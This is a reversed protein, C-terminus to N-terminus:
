TATASESGPGRGPCRRGGRGAGATRTRQGPHGPSRLPGATRRRRDARHHGNPATAEEGATVPVGRDPHRGAPDVLREGTRGPRQRRATAGTGPCGAARARGADDRGVATRVVPQDGAAAPRHRHPPHRIAVDRPGAYRQANTLAEALIRYASRSVLAPLDDVPDSEVRVSLQNRRHVGVLDALGRLDPEPTPEAVEDRLVGLLDDLETLAQRAATEIVELAETARDANTVAGRRGATAQVAIVTLAHGIGDHLERALRVHEVEAALRAEAVALLDRTTAGLFVPALRAALAGLGWVAALCAFAAAVAILVVAVTGAPGDPPPVSVRVLVDEAGALASVAVVVAGAAVGFVLFGALLGLVLHTSWGASPAGAGSDAQRSWGTTPSACCPAPRPSRWSAPARSWGWCRFWCCRRDGGRGSPDPHDRGAAPGPRGAVLVAATGIAAGLMLWATRTVVDLAM